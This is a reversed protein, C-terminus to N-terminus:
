CCYGFRDTKTRGTDGTTAAARDRKGNTAAARKSASVHSRKTALQPSRNSHWRDGSRMIAPLDPSPARAGLHAHHSREAPRSRAALETTNIATRQAIDSLHNEDFAFTADQLSFAVEFISRVQTDLAERLDSESVTATRVLHQGLLENTEKCAALNEELQEATIKSQAELITGLRLGPKDGNTVAHVIKGHQFEFLFMANATRLTLTGTKGLSSLTSVLDPVPLVATTGRM